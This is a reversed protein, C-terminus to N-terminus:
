RRTRRPRAPPHPPPLTLLRSRPPPRVQALQCLRVLAYARRDVGSGGGGGGDGFFAELEAKEAWLDVRGGVLAASPAVALSAAAGGGGSGDDRGMVDDGLAASRQIIFRSDSM